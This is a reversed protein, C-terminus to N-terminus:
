GLGHSRARARLARQITSTVRAAAPRGLAVMPRSPITDTGLALARYKPVGGVDATPEIRLEVGGATRTIQAPATLVHDRLAGTRVHIPGPGFGLRAREALTSPALPTWRGRGASGETAFVARHADRIAPVSARFVEPIDDITADFADFIRDIGNRNGNVDDVITVRLMGAPVGGRAAGGARSGGGASRTFRAIAARLRAYPDTAM